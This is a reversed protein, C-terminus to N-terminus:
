LQNLYINRHSFSMEMNLEKKLKEVLDSKIVEEEPLLLVEGTNKGEFFLHYENKPLEDFAEEAEKLFEQLKRRLERNRANLKGLNM